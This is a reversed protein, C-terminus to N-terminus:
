QSCRGYCLVTWRVSYRSLLIVFHFSGFRGNVASIAFFRLRETLRTHKSGDGHVSRQAHGSSFPLPDSSFATAGGHRQGGGLTIVTLERRDLGDKNYFFLVRSWRDGQGKM